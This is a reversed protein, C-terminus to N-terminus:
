YPSSVYSVFLDGFDTTRKEMTGNGTMMAHLSSINLLGQSFLDKILIDYFSRKGSLEPFASELVQSPSGMYINPAEKQNEEFWVRPNQFFHLIRLHWPTLSDILNIFLLQINDDIGIGAASNLVANRLAQLKEEHHNRIAAQTAHLVSTIFVENDVLSNIDFDPLNNKLEELGEALQVLWKDRRKSVPPAILLSFLESAGGEILPIASLGTKVISHVYDGPSNRLDKNIDEM